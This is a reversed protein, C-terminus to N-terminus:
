LALAKCNQYTVDPWQYDLGMLDALKATFLIVAPHRRIDDTGLGERSLSCCLNHLSLAVGSPNCADQVDIADQYINKM